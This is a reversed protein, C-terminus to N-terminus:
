RGRGGRGRSANKVAEIQIDDLVEIMNESFEIGPELTLLYNIQSESLPCRAKQLITSLSKIDTPGSSRRGSSRRGSQRDESGGNSTQKQRDGSKKGELGVSCSSLGVSLLVSTLNAIFDRRKM